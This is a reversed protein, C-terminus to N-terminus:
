DWLYEEEYEVGHRHLLALLEEKFPVTRHHDQQGAIDALLEGKSDYGISFVSYGTQWRFQPTFKRRAWRSSNAKLVARRGM